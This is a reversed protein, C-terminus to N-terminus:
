RRARRRPRARVRQLVRAQAAQAARAKRRPALPADHALLGRRAQHGDVDVFALGAGELVTEVQLAVRVAKEFAHQDGGLHHAGLGDVDVQAVFVV